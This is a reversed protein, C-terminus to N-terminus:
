FPLMTAQYAAPQRRAGCVSVARVVLVRGVAASGPPAMPDALRAWALALVQEPSGTRMLPEGDDASAALDGSQVPIM